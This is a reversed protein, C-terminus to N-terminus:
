CVKDISTNPENVLENYRPDDSIFVFEPDIRAWGRREQGQSLATSLREIAQDIQGSVAAFCAQGYVNDQAAQAGAMVWHESAAQHQGAKDLAQALAGRAEYDDPALTVAESLHMIAEDLRGQYLYAYGMMRHADQSPGAATNVLPAADLIHQGLAVVDDFRHAKLHLIQLWGLAYTDAPNKQFASTLRTLAAEFRGMRAYTTGISDFLLSSDPNQRLGREFAQMAGEYDGLKTTLLIGLGFYAHDDQPDLVIAREYAVMAPELQNTRYYTHGIANYAAIHTPDIELVRQFASLAADYHEAEFLAMGLNMHATVDNPERTAVQQLAIIKEHLDTTM